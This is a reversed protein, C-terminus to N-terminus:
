WDWGSVPADGGGKTSFTGVNLTRTFLPRTNTCGWGFGAPVRASGAKISFHVVFEIDAPFGLGRWTNAFCHALSDDNHQRQRQEYREHERNRLAHDARTHKLPAVVFVKGADQLGRGIRM